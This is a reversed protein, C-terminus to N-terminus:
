LRTTFTRIFTWSLLAISLGLFYFSFHLPFYALRHVLRLSDDYLFDRDGIVIEIPPLQKLVENSGYFPCLYSNKLDKFDGTYLDMIGMMVCLSTFPDKLSWLLSPYFNYESCRLAPYYSLIGDPLVDKDQILRYALTLCLGGGASDGSIIIKEIGNEKPSYISLLNLTVPALSMSSGNTSRGFTLPAKQSLTKQPWLM